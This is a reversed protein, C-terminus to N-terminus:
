GVEWEQRAEEHPVGGVITMNPSASITVVPGARKWKFIDWLLVLTAITAGWWAAIESAEM